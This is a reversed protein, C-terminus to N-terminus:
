EAKLFLSDYVECTDFDPSGQRSFYNSYRSIIDKLFPSSVTAVRIMKNKDILMDVKSTELTIKNQFDILGAEILNSKPMFHYNQKGNTIYSNLRRRDDNKKGTEAKLLNFNKVAINLPVIKCFLIRNANRSGNDRVHIDCSPTLVIFRNNDYKVIDGTYINKKIPETIYFESPHYKEIEEDIHEQMHSLTYRLLSKQKQEPTRTTDKVWSEMSNSLHNWFIGTLYNEIEGKRGLIKTIGTQYIEVLESLISQFDSVRDRKKFFANEEKDDISSLSGSVIFIPFRQNQEIEEVIELGELEDTGQSLKLDIIAGDYEPSLLSDRADELKEFINYEVKVDNKKNFSEINDKYTQVQAKNDEVILLKM